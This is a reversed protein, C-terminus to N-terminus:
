GYSMPSAIALDLATAAVYAATLIAQARRLRTLAIALSLAAQVLLAFQGPSALPAGFIFRNVVIAGCHYAALLAMAWRGDREFATSPAEEPSPVILAAALFLTLILAVLLAFQWVSWTKLGSLEALAWWFQLLEGLIVCALATSLWDQAVRGRAKFAAVFGSLIRAVGLGLVISLVVATFRFADM